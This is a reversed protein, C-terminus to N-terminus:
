QVLYNLGKRPCGNTSGSQQALDSADMSGVAHQSKLSTSPLGYSIQLSSLTSSLQDYGVAAACQLSLLSGSSTRCIVLAQRSSAPLM